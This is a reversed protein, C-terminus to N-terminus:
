VECSTLQVGEWRANSVKAAVELLQKEVWVFEDTEGTLELHPQIQTNEVSNLGITIINKAILPKDDSQSPDRRPQLKATAQDRNGFPTGGRGGELELTKKRLILTARVTSFM